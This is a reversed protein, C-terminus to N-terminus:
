PGGYLTPNICVQLQEDILREKSTLNITPKTNNERDTWYATKSFLLYLFYVIDTQSTAIYQFTWIRRWFKIHCANCNVFSQLYNTRPYQVRGELVSESAATWSPYFPAGSSYEVLFLAININTLSKISSQLQVSMHPTKPIGLEDLINGTPQCTYKM